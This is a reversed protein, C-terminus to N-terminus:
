FYILKRSCLCIIECRKFIDSSFHCSHVKLFVFECTGTLSGAAEAADFQKLHRKFIGLQVKGSTIPAVGETIEGPPVLRWARVCFTTTTQVCSGREGEEGGSAAKRRRSRRKRERRIISHKGGQAM